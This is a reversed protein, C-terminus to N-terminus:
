DKDNKSKLDKSSNLTFNKLTFNMSGVWMAMLFTMFRM